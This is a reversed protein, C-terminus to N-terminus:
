VIGKNEEMSGTYEWPKLESKFPQIMEGTLQLNPSKINFQAQTIKALVNCQKYSHVQVDIFVTLLMM